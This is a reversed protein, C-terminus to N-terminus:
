SRLELLWRWGSSPFGCGSALVGSGSEVSGIGAIFGADLMANSEPAPRVQRAAPELVEVVAGVMRDAANLIIVVTFSDYGAEGLDLKV